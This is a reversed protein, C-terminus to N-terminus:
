ELPHYKDQLVLEILKIFSGTKGIQSRALLLIRNHEVHHLVKIAEADGRSAAFLVRHWMSMAHPLLMNDTEQNETTKSDHNELFGAEMVNAIVQPLQSVPVKTRQLYHDLHNTNGLFLQHGQQNLIITPPTSRYGFARAVDQTFSAFSSLSSSHPGGKSKYRARLDFFSLNPITDGMRAKEVVICISRHGKLSTEFSDHFPLESIDPNSPCCIKYNNSHSKSQHNQSAPSQCQLLSRFAKLWSVFVSQIGNRQLRILIVDTENNSDNEQQLHIHKVICLTEQTVPVCLQHHQEPKNDGGRATAVAIFALAYDVMLCISPLLRKIDPYLWQVTTAFHQVMTDFGTSVLLKDHNPGNELYSERSIYNAPCDKWTIVRHFPVVACNWGTASVNVIFVNPESLVNEPNPFSNSANNNPFSSSSSHQAGHFLIDVQGNRKLGYHCEDAIVLMMRRKGTAPNVHYISQCLSQFAHNAEGNRFMCSSIVRQSFCSQAQNLLFWAQNSPDCRTSKDLISTGQQQTQSILHELTAKDPHFAPVCLKWLLSVLRERTQQKLSTKPPIIIRFDIENYDHYGPALQFAEFLEKAVTIQSEHYHHQVPALKEATNIITPPHIKTTTVAPPSAPFTTKHLKEALHRICQPGSGPPLQLVQELIWWAASEIHQELSTLTTIQPTLAAVTPDHQLSPLLSLLPSPPPNTKVKQRNLKQPIGQRGNVVWAVMVKALSVNHIWGKQCSYPLNAQPGLYKKIEEDCHEYFWAVPATGTSLFMVGCQLFPDDPKQKLGTQFAALCDQMFKITRQRFIKELSRKQVPGLQKAKSFATTKKGNFAKEGKVSPTSNERRAKKGSFGCQKQLIQPSVCSVGAPIDHSVKCTNSPILTEYEFLERM